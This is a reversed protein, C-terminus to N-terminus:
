LLLVYKQCHFLPLWCIHKFTHVNCTRDHLYGENQTFRMTLPRRVVVLKLAIHGATGSILFLPACTRVHPDQVGGNVKTLRWALPDRVGFWIEAFDTWGNGLYPFPPACGCTRVCARASTGWGHGTHYADHSPRKFVCVLNTVTPRDM